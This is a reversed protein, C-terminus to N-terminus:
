QARLPGIEDASTAVPSGYLVRDAMLAKREHM